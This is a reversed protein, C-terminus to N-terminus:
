RFQANFQDGFEVDLQLNTLKDNIRKKYEYSTATITCPIFYGNMEIYVLPSLILDALWTYEEDTIIDTNLTMKEKYQSAYTSRTENYVNNTNYYNVQGSADITYPLKGFDTKTITLAKRSLKTFNRSDFGGYQNLFHMAYSNYIAECTINFTYITGSHVQVTYHTTVATILGADAANIANPAVNLIQLNNAASPTITGNYTGQLTSGAYAKVQIAVGSTTTPLYPIFCYADGSNIYNAQPRNSAVKNEFAALSTVTGTQRGNYHNFFLTATSSQLYTGATSPDVTYTNLYYFEAYFGCVVSTFFEGSGTQQCVLTNAAPNFVSAVYNRIIDGINFIGFNSGPQPVARVSAVPTSGGNIFVDCVYKYNTYGTAGPRADDYVVYVADGHASYYDAPQSKISFSM